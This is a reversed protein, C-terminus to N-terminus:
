GTLASCQYSHCDKWLQSIQNSFLCLGWSLVTWTLCNGMCVVCCVKVLMFFIYKCGQNTHSVDWYHTMGGRRCWRKSDNQCAQPWSGYSPQSWIRFWCRKQSSGQATGPFLHSNWNAEKELIWCCKEILNLDLSKEPWLFVQIGMKRYSVSSPVFQTVLHLTKSAYKVNMSSLFHYLISRWCLKTPPQM